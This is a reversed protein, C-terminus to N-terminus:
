GRNRKRADEPWERKLVPFAARCAPCSEILHLLIMKFDDSTRYFLSGYEAGHELFGPLINLNEDLFFSTRSRPDDPLFVLAFSRKPNKPPDQIPTCKLADLLALVKKPNRIWHAKGPPIEALPIRPNLFEKAHALLVTETANFLDYKDAVDETALCGV